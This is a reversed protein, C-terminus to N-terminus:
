KKKPASKKAAPKKAAKKAVPKKPRRKPLKLRKQRRPHPKRRQNRPVKRRHQRRRLNPSTLHKPNAKWKISNLADLCEAVLQYAKRKLAARSPKELSSTGM